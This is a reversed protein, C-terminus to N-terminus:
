NPSWQNRSESKSIPSLPQNGDPQHSVPQGGAPHGHNGRRHGPHEHAPHPRVARGGETQEECPERYDSCALCGDTLAFREGRSVRLSEAVAVFATFVRIKKQATVWRADVNFKM